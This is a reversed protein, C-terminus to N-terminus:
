AAVQKASAMFARIKAETDPWIRGGRELRSVVESNGCSVKGFYSPGMGTEALFAQITTLLDTQMLGM